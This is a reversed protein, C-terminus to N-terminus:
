KLILPEEDRVRKVVIGGLSHAVFLLPRNPDDSRKGDLRLLLNRAHDEIGMLNSGITVKSNYSFLLVRANPIRLPLFDKLWFKNDATWTNAAHSIKSKPNLGHVAIISLITLL